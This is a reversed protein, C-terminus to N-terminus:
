LSTVSSDTEKNINDLKCISIKPAGLADEKVSGFYINGTSTGIAFNVGNPNFVAAVL